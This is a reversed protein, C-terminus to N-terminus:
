TTSVGETDRVRTQETNSDVAVKKQRKRILKRLETLSITDDWAVINVILKDMCKNGIPFSKDTVYAITLEKGKCFTCHEKTDM